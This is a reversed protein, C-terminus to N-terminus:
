SLSFSASMKDIIAEDAAKAIEPIGNKPGTPAELTPKISPFYTKFGDFVSSLFELNSRTTAPVLSATKITSDSALPKVSSSINFATFNPWSPNTGTILIISSKAFSHM